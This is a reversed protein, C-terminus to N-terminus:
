GGVEEIARVAAIHEARATAVAALRAQLRPPATIAEMTTQLEDLQKRVLHYCVCHGDPGDHGAIIHPVAARVAAEVGARWAPNAALTDRGRQGGIVSGGPPNRLAANVAEDYAEVSARLGAATAAEIGPRAAALIPAATRVALDALGSVTLIDSDEAAAITATIANDLPNTM